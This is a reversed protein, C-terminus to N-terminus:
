TDFSAASSDPTPNDKRRPKSYVIRLFYWLPFNPSLPSYKGRHLIPRKMEVSGKASINEVCCSELSLMGGHACLRRTATAHLFIHHFLLRTSSTLAITVRCLKLKTSQIVGGRRRGVSYSDTRHRKPSQLLLLGRSRRPRIKPSRHTLFRGYTRVKRPFRLVM